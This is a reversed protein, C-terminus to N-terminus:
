KSLEFEYLADNLKSKFVSFSDLAALLNETANDPLPRGCNPCVIVKPHKAGDKIEFTSNCKCNIKVTM